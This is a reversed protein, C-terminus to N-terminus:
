GEQAQTIGPNGKASGAQNGFAAAVMERPQVSAAKRVLVLFTAQFADEADHHRRLLRRCVGWVMPGHRKLLAAFADEDREEVFRSLLSGDTLGAADALLTTRRVCQVVENMPNTAM